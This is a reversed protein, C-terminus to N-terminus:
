SRNSAGPPGPCFATFLLHNLFSILDAYEAHRWEGLSCPAGAKGCFTEFSGLSAWPVIGSILLWCLATGVLSVVERRGHPVNLGETPFVGDQLGHTGHAMMVLLLLVFPVTYEELTQWGVSEPPSPPPGQHGSGSGYGFDMRQDM